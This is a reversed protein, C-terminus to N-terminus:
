FHWKLILFDNQIIIDKDHIGLTKPKIKKSNKKQSLFLLRKFLGLVLAATEFSINVVSVLCVWTLASYLNQALYNLCCISHM